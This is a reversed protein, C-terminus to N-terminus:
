RRLWWGLWLGVLGWAVVSDVLHGQITEWPLQFWIHGMYPGWLFSFLGVAMSGTLIGLFSPVGGKTLVSILLITLILDVVFGMIMPTAMDPKYSKRFIITAFPKGESQELVKVHEEMPTGEPVNPMRYQGDETLSSSIATMIKDQDPHYRAEGDHIGSVTWSFFQWLFVIVAGVLSGIIWKKM